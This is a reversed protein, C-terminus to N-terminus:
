PSLILNNAYVPVDEGLAAVAALADDWALGCEVLAITQNWQSMRPLKLPIRPVHPDSHRHNGPIVYALQGGNRVCTLDGSFYSVDASTNWITALRGAILSDARWLGLPTGPKALYNVRMTGTAGWRASGMVRLRGQTNRWAYHEEGGDLTEVETDVLTWAKGNLSYLEGGCLVAVYSDGAVLHRVPGFPLTVYELAMSTGTAWLSGNSDLAWWRSGQSAVQTLGDSFAVAGRRKQSSTSNPGVLWAKGSETVLLAEAHRAAVSIVPEKLLVDFGDSSWPGMTGRWYTSSGDCLVDFTGGCAVLSTDFFGLDHCLGSKIEFARKDEVLLATTCHDFANIM